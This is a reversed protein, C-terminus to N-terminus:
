VTTIHTLLSMTAWADISVSYPYNPQKLGSGSPSGGAVTVCALNGRQCLRVRHSGHEVFVYNGGGDVLAGTPAHAGDVVTTCNSGPSALSCVQVRTNFRDSIVLDDSGHLTVAVPNNLESPGAGATGTSLIRHVVDVAQQTVCVSAASQWFQCSKPIKQPPFPFQLVQARLWHALHSPPLRQVDCCGTGEVTPSSSTPWSGSCSSFFLPVRM